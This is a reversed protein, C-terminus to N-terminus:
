STKRNVSILTLNLAYIKNLLGLLAAQDVIKGRLITEGDAENSIRLGEFWDSWFETLHGAVRIEYIYPMNM